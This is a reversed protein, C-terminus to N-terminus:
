FDEKHLLVRCVVPDSLNTVLGNHGHLGSLDCHVKKHVPNKTDCYRERLAGLWHWLTRYTVLDSMDDTMQKSNPNPNPDWQFCLWHVKDMYPIHCLPGHSLPIGKTLYVARHMHANHCLPCQVCRWRGYHYNATRLQSVRTVSLNSLKIVGVGSMFGTPRYNVQVFLRVSAHLHVWPFHRQLRVEAHM